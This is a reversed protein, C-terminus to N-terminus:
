GLYAQGGDVAITQGNIYSSGESCLQVVFRGIDEECEGVRRQPISAQFAEAETPNQEMWGALGPSKAHPLIANSRIGEPGWECAAARTLSRISEKVAAYAGYGSMDWRKAATSALNIICGDGLLHPHALKMLRLTALPGSEFGATFAKDTVDDLLGNPVEQANNVLINLGGFHKVCVSVLHQLDESNKVNCAVAIAEGGRSAITEVTQVLKEETRGAVVVSVGAASLAFAIGQGVGQGAGTVIAIKGELEKM